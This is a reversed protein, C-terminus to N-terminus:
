FEKRLGKYAECKKEDGECKVRKSKMGRLCCCRREADYFKCRIHSQTKRQYAM